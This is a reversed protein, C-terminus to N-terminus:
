KTHYLPWDFYYNLIYVDELHFFLSTFVHDKFIAFVYMCWVCFPLSFIVLLVNQRILHNLNSQLWINDFFVFNERKANIPLTFMKAFNLSDYGFKTM